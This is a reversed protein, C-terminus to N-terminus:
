LGRDSPGAYVWSGSLFKGWPYGQNPDVKNKEDSIFVYKADFKSNVPAEFIYGAYSNAGGSFRITAQRYLAWKEHLLVKDQAVPDVALLTLDAVVPPGSSISAYIQWGLYNWNKSAFTTPAGLKDDSEKQQAGLPSISVLLLALVIPIPNRM